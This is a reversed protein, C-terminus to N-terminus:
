DLIGRLLKGFVEVPPIWHRMDWPYLEALVYSSYLNLVPGDVFPVGYQSLYYVAAIDNAEVRLEGNGCLWRPSSLGSAVKILTLGPLM